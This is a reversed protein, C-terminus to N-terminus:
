LRLIAAPVGRWAGDCGIRIEAKEQTARFEGAQNRLEEPEKTQLLLLMGVPNIAHAAMM